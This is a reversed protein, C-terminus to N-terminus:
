VIDNLNWNFCRFVTLLKERYNFLLPANNKNCLIFHSFAIDTDKFSGDADAHFTFLHPLFFDLFRKTQKKFKVLQNAGM